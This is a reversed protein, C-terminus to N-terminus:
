ENQERNVLLIITTMLSVAAMVGVPLMGTSRFFRYCFFCSLILSLVVAMVYFPKSKRSMGWASLLLLAGFGLGMLLSIQSAAKVYGFIGGAIVLIAYVTVIVLNM